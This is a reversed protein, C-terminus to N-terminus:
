GRLWNCGNVQYKKHEHAICGAENVVIDVLIHLKEETDTLFTGDLCVLKEKVASPLGVNRLILEM